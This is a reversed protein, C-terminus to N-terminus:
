ITEVISRSCIKSKPEVKPQTSRHANGSEKASPEKEDDSDALLHKATSKKLSQKGEKPLNTLTNPPPAKTATSAKASSAISDSDSDSVLSAQKPRGVKPKVPPM